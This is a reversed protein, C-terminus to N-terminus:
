IIRMRVIAGFHPVSSGNGLVCKVGQLPGKWLANEPAFFVDSDGQLYAVNLDFHPIPYVKEMLSGRSEGSVQNQGALQEERRVQDCLFFLLFDIQGVHPIRLVHFGHEGVGGREEGRRDTLM